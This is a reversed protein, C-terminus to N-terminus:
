RGEERQVALTFYGGGLSRSEDYIVRFRLTRDQREEISGYWIGPFNKIGLGVTSELVIEEGVHFHVYSDVFISQIKEDEEYPISVLPVSSVSGKEVVHIMRNEETDKAVGVLESIETEYMEKTYVSPELHGTDWTEFIMLQESRGNGLGDVVALAIEDRGDRDYDAKYLEVGPMVAPWNLNCDLYMHNSDGDPTVRYDITM